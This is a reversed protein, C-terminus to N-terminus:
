CVLVSGFLRIGEIYVECEDLIAETHRNLKYCLM